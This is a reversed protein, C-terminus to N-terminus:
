DIQFASEDGLVQSSIMNKLATALEPKVLPMPLALGGQYVAVKLAGGKKKGSLAVGLAGDTVGEGHALMCYTSSTM